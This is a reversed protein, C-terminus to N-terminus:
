SGLVRTHFDSAFRREPDLEDRLAIFKRAEPWLVRVDDSHHDLEKGWHPRAALARM